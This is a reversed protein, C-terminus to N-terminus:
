SIPPPLVKVYKAESPVKEGSSDKMVFLM